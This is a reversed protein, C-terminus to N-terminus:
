CQTVDFTLVVKFLDGDIIIDMKGGQLEVLSKAISLGLGSGETSRSTDGRVFREMLEDGSINLPYKSINKFTIIAKQNNSSLSTYIRTNPQTYKNINNMLNDFVRWLYRADAKIKIENEELKLVNTLNNNQFREEYEGVSQLLLVGVDCPALEVKLAGSSAKSADVLDEILKKLRISQRDLVDIYELLQKNEIKEKKILDVYNIISTLPTKIDHSVNTILETKMRESKMKENVANQMGINIHNLTEGFRRFDGFMMETNIKYDLNGKAIEEGGKKIKVLLISILLVLLMFILNFIIFFGIGLENIPDCAILLIVNLFVTVASLIATKVVLNINSIVYIIRKIIPFILLYIKHLLKYIITNKILIHSKIRVVFSLLTSLVTFYCIVSIFSWVIISLLYDVNHYVFQVSVAMSIIILTVAIGLFLDFPIKNFINLEINGDLARHGAASFLYALLLLTLIASLVFIFFIAYRMSYGCNILDYVLSYKDSSPMSKKVSLMIDAYVYNEDSNEEYITENYNDHLENGTYKDSEFLTKHELKVFHCVNITASCLTDNELQNNAISIPENNIKDYVTINYYINSDEFRSYFDDRMVRNSYDIYNASIRWGEDELIRSMINVRVTQLSRSYFSNEYMFLACVVCLFMSLVTLFSFFAAIVKLVISYKIKKLYNV